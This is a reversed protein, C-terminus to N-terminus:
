LFRRIQSIVSATAVACGLLLGVFLLLPSTGLVSDAWIGAVVGVGVCVAVTLGMTAFAAWSGTREPDDPPTM